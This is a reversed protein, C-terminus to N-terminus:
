KGNSPIQLLIVRNVVTNPAVVKLRSPWIVLAHSLFFDIQVLEFDINSYQNHLQGTYKRQLNLYPNWDKLKLLARIATVLFFFRLSDGRPPKPRFAARHTDTLLKQHFCKNSLCDLRNRISTVPSVLVSLSGGWRGRRMAQQQVRPRGAMRRGIGAHLSTRDCLCLTPAPGICRHRTFDWRLIM